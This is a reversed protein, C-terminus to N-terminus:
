MPSTTQKPQEVDAEKRIMGAGVTVNTAPDIVIFSGTIKNIKYPDIFIPKSTTLQVRGIENLALSTTEEQGLTDVDMRYHIKQVQMSVVQSTHQLLGSEPELAEENMWCIYADVHQTQTPVNNRRVIMDGRSIDM